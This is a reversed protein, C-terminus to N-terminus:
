SKGSLLNRKRLRRWKRPLTVTESFGYKRISISGSLALMLYWVVYIHGFYSVSFFSALHTCLSVVIGWTLRKENESLAPDDVANVLASIAIGITILFCFLTFLGGFLTEMVYQNTIDMLTFGSTGWTATSNLGLLWWDHVHNVWADFLAERYAGTSGAVIDIRSLMHWIPKGTRLCNLIILIIFLAILIPVYRRYKYLVVGTVGVALAILPTSSATLAIIVFASGLSTYFLIKKSHLKLAETMLLPVASAFFCGAMIPHSFAGTCRLRGNRVLSYLPVGGFISFFNRGTAKEIMFCIAVPISIVAVSLVIRRIDAFSRIVVRFVFYLSFMDFCKGLVNKEVAGNRLYNTIIQMAIYLIIFMDIKQIRITPIQAGDLMLKVIAVVAMIRIMNFEFGLIEIRQSSSIFCTILIFPIVIYRYNMLITAVCLVTVVIIAIPHLNTRMGDSEFGQMLEDM